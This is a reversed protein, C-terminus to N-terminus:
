GFLGGLLGGAKKRRKKEVKANVESFAREMDTKGDRGLLADVFGAENKEGAFEDGDKGGKPSDPPTDDFTSAKFGEKKAVYKFAKVMDPIMEDEDLHMQDLVGLYAQEMETKGEMRKKQDDGRGFLAGFFGGSPDKRLGLDLETQRLAKQMDTAFGPLAVDELKVTLQFAKEMDTLDRNKLIAKEEEDLEVQEGYDGKMILFAKEMDTLDTRELVDKDEASFHLKHTLGRDPLIKLGTLNEILAAGLAMPAAFLDTLFGGLGQGGDSSSSSSSSSGEEDSEEEFLKQVGDDDVMLDVGGKRRAASGRIFFAAYGGISLGGFFLFTLRSYWLLKAM